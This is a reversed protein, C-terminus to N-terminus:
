QSQAIIASDITVGINANVLIGLFSLKSCLSNISFAKKENKTFYIAIGNIYTYKIM